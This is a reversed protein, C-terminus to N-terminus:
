EPSHTIAACIFPFKATSSSAGNVQLPLAIICIYISLSLYFSLSHWKHNVMMSNMYAPKVTGCDM